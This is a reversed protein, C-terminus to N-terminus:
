KIFPKFSGKPYAKKAKKEMKELRKYYDPFEALHALAIKTADSLNKAVKLKPMKAHEDWETKIGKVVQSRKIVAPNIKYKKYAKDVLTKTIKPMM